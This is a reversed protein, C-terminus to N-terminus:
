RQEQWSTKSMEPAKRDVGPDPNSFAIYLTIVGMVIASLPIGVVLYLMGRKM